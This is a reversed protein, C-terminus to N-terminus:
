VNWNLRQLLLKQVRFCRGTQPALPSCTDGTRNWSRGSCCSATTSQWCVSGNLLMPLREKEMPGISIGEQRLRRTLEPSLGESM